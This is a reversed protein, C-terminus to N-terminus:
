PAGSRECRYGPRGGPGPRPALPVGVVRYLRSPGDAATLRLFPASDLAASSGDIPGALPGFPVSRDVLLVYGVDERSLVSRWASPDHFFREAEEIVTVARLLMSPRLYPAMGEVLGARGTMSEFTAITRRNALIRADCGTARRVMALVPIARAGRSAAGSPPRASWVFPVSAVIVLAAVVTVAARRKALIAVGGELVGLGVLIWPLSAYDSLRRRGFQALIMVHFGRGFVIAVVIFALATGWATLGVARLTPPFWLLMAVAVLLGAVAIMASVALSARIGLGESFFRTVIDTPRASSRSSPTAAGAPPRKGTLLFTTPDFGPGFTAYAGPATVGEFGIDGRPLLLVALAVLAAVGFLVGSTRVIVRGRGLALGALGFWVVVASVVALPVLHTGAAVGFLAGAVVTRRRRGTGDRLASLALALGAFAIMRGFAEAKYTDIDRTMEPNLVVRNAVLVVPLLPALVRLGLERGVAWLAVVLGVSGIWLLPALAHLPDRGLVFSSAGNFANLIVKSSAPPFLSGWQFSLHPLRHADAIELGDAWYRFAVPANFNADPSFGLRVVAIGCVVVAGGALPALEARVRAAFARLQPGLRRRVAMVVLAATVAISLALWTWPLLVHALMLVFAVAADVAFGIAFM